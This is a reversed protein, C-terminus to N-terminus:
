KLFVGFVSSFRVRFSSIPQAAEEAMALDRRHENELTENSRVLFSLHELFPFSPFNPV